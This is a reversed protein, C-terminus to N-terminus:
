ALELGTWHAAFALTQASLAATRALARAGHGVDKERRLLVAREGSTAHQLAACMKRAHLPDVRSDGDFVTFLVAPYDVSAAQPSVHHYPSYGLLWDLEVAVDASGYEVNWSMGLGFKEYRVMDLLPASCIVAQYAQPRRTLAAGVLLGGNSGGSICLQGPTTVGHAVLWDAAAEFDEVVRHRNELMGARHWQEGEEGGGRVNAVTYVGGAEVWALMAASYAPTLSVGFGGYGYLITPRPGSAGTPGHDTRRIVFMRVATGDASSFEVVRASVGPVAVQGPPEAHLQAVLAGDPGASRADLRYIRAATTHDTYAVHVQPGGEPREVLSGLSGLGPLDVRGRAGGLRRGTRAEHVTIESVAHRTWSVLLLPEGVEQGDLVAYDDLVADPDEEVLTRWRSPGPDGPDTVVLRRRPAALDTTLYLRGDRGVHGGTQADLGTVVPRLQPRDPPSAGLDAIWLDNRPATGTASSLLLWRGDRSVQVGYYSRLDQGSGFVEVDHAPDTGVRHLAVRRHFQREAEPLEQPPLRRVYYYASGGPLFAVPSYRTRDIPGDVVAVTAVDLVRLVSEETGGTSTQYALLDGEKSPQWADLTTLGLPDLAMPDILVREVRRVQTEDGGLSSGSEEVAPEEVVLVAHQQGPARRMVFCRERRWVPVGVMGTALLESVRQEARGLQGWTTLHQQYTEDQERAWSRTRESDADELWRYPDPVSRGHLHEVLDGRTAEPYRM